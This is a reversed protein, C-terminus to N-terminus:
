DKQYFSCTFGDADLKLGDAWNPTISMQKCVEETSMSPDAEIVIEDHVHMVIDSHKFTQLATCLIDRSIGQVINEVLKAGYTEQKEWRNGVGVGYFEISEGGFRNEGISPKAYFLERGSPLTIILTNSKFRFHIGNVRDTSRERIVKKVANDIGWWLQVIQPNSERWSSVLSPLEEETLGMELAGMAKLAGVSGGYGCALEAIKGKQRLHGNIGHKEVPVGFMESASQCYIDGGKQFLEMRWTEDALWALVRAEISSYDAVLFVKDKEPIIATRILESLVQPISDFFLQLSVTDGAKVFGRAEELHEMKNRPLNQLQILRGAFRGTRNAGYFQFLGRARGDKCVCNLMAQYKSISSKSLGQRIDLVEKVDGDASKLLASVAKKDLSETEIGNELLWGKLQQVSNPNELGTLKRLRDMAEERISENIQIANEALELDILVGRDNIMQDIHYNGWEFNPMPFRALKKQIELETEVDRRNYLKYLHWKEPADRPLNGTRQGNSKTPTCPMSFYRILEKGASLKQKDLGLVEGVKELSLPLGCYASWVMSCYWSEPNLYKLPEPESGFPADRKLSYGRRKLWESLCIREFQANFAWKNIENSLLAHIIDLPILEGSVLDITEVEGGDISYSFLLIDFEPSEVYRYVGSKQLDIDSYTEIDISINKM